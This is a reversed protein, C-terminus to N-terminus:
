IFWQTVYPGWVTSKRIKRWDLWSSGPLERLCHKFPSALKVFFTPSISQYKSNLPRRHTNQTETVSKSSTSKNTERGLSQLHIQLLAAHRRNLKTLCWKSMNYNIKWSFYKEHPSRALVTIFCSAVMWGTTQQCSPKRPYAAFFLVPSFTTSSQSAPVLDM